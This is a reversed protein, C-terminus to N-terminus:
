RVTVEVRRNRLEPTNDRTKIFLKHEGYSEIDMARPETAKTRIMEAVFEARQRSLKDNRKTSGVTDTYGEVTVDPAARSKVDQLMKDAEARSGEALKTSGSQFLVVYKAPLEPTYDLAHGFDQRIGEEGVKFVRQDTLVEGMDVSEGAEDILVKGREDTVTVKGVTGGPDELLVIYSLPRFGAKIIEDLSALAPAFDKRVQQMDVQFPEDSYGDILVGEGAQDLLVDEGRDSTFGIKGVPGQPLELLAVYSHELPPLGAALISSMGDLADSFDAKIQEPTYRQVTQIYKGIETGYGPDNIGFVGKSNVIHVHNEVGVPNKLLVVYSKATCVPALVLLGMALASRALTDRM